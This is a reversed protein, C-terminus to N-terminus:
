ETWHAEMCDGLQAVGWPSEATEPSGMPSELPNLHTGRGRSGVRLRPTMQSVAIHKHTPPNSPPFVHSGNQEVQM